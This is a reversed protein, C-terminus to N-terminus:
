LSLSSVFVLVTRARTTLPIFSGFFCIGSHTSHPTDGERKGVSPAAGFIGIAGKGPGPSLSPSVRDPIKHVSGGDHINGEPAVVDM